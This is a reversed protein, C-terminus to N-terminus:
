RYLYTPVKELQFRVLPSYKVFEQFIKIKLCMFTRALM